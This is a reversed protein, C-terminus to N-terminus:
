RIKDGTPSGPPQQVLDKLAKLRTESQVFYGKRKTEWEGNALAMERVAQALMDYSYQARQQPTTQNTFRVFADVVQRVEQAYAAHDNNARANQIAALVADAVALIRQRYAAYEAVLQQTASELEQQSSPRWVVAERTRPEPVICRLAMVRENLADYLQQDEGRGTGKLFREARGLAPFYLDYADQFKGQVELAPGQALAQGAHDRAQVTQNASWSSYLLASVVGVVIVFGGIGGLVGAKEGSTLRSWWTARSGGYLVATRSGSEARRVAPTGAASLIARCKPCIQADVPVSAGCRDCPRTSHAIAEAPVATLEKGRDKGSPVRLARHCNPCHIVSGARSADAVM